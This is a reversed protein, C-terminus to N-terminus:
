RRRSPPAEMKFGVGRVTVLMEAAPGLKKRLHGITVDLLRDAPDYILGGWVSDSLFKRALVAGAREMFVCLLKFEVNGLQIPEGYTTVLRKPLDVAIPGCELIAAASALGPSARRILADVRALLEEVEFPKTLYDDAGFRLGLIRDCTEARGTLMLIPMAAFRKDKRLTLCLQLGDGDPLGRDMIVLDTNVAELERRAEAMTRARRAM